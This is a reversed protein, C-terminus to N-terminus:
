AILGGDITLVQGTIYSAGQSCLFVVAQAVEEATGFRGMPIRGLIQARIEESLPEVMGGSAIFGPAVANVTISRS